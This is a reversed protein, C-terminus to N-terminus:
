SPIVVLEKQGLMQNVTVWDEWLHEQRLVYFKRPNQGGGDGDIPLKTEVINRYNFFLHPFFQLQGHITACALAV